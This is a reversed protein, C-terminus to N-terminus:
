DGTPPAKAAKLPPYQPGGPRPEPSLNDRDDDSWGRFWARIKEALDHPVAAMHNKVEIGDARCRDIIAKSPVGLERALIHVRTTKEVHHNNTRAAAGALRDGRPPMTTKAYLRDGSVTRFQLARM